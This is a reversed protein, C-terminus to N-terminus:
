LLVRVRKEILSRIEADSLRSETFDVVVQLSGAERSESLSSIRGLYRKKGAIIEVSRGKELDDELSEDLMVVVQPLDTEVIRVLAGGFPVYKGVGAAWVVVGHLNSTYSCNEINQKAVNKQREADQVSRQLEQTRHTDAQDLVSQAADVSLTAQDMRAKSVIEAEWLRKIRVAEAQAAKVQQFEPLKERGNQNAYSDLSRRADEAAENWSKLEREYSLCNLQVLLDGPKVKSGKMVSTQVRAAVQAQIETEEGYWRVVGVSSLMARFNVTQSRTLNTVKLVTPEFSYLSSSATVSYNRGPLLDGFFISGNSGTMATRPWSGRAAPSGEIMISIAVGEVPKGRRGQVGVGLGFGETAGCFDFNENDSLRRFSRRVPFSYGALESTIEYNGGASLGSIRYFGSNDTLSESTSSGQARVLVAPLPEAGASCGRVYGSIMYAEKKTGCIVLEKKTDLARFHRSPFSYGAYKWSVEYDRGGELDDFIFLGHDGVQTLRDIEGSALRVETGSLFKSPTDCDQVRGSISLEGKLQRPQLIRIPIRLQHELRDNSEGYSIFIWQQWDPLPQHFKIRMTVAQWPELYGGRPDITYFPNKDTNWYVAGPGELTLPFSM